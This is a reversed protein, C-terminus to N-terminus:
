HVLCEAGFADTTQATVLDSAALQTLTIELPRSAPMWTAFNSWPRAWRLYGRARLVLDVADNVGCIRVGWGRPIRTVEVRGWRMGYFNRGGVVFDGLFLDVKDIARFPAYSLVPDPVPEPKVRVTVGVTLATLPTYESECGPMPMDSRGFGAFRVPVWISGRADMTALASQQLSGTVISAVDNAPPLAVLHRADIHATLRGGTLVRIEVPGALARGVIERADPFPFFLTAPSVAAVRFAPLVVPEGFLSAFTIEITNGEPELSFGGTMFVDGERLFVGFEHGPHVFYAQTAGLRSPNVRLVQSSPCHPWKAALALCPGLAIATAVGAAALARHM